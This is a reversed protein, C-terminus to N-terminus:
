KQNKIIQHLEESSKVKYGDQIFPKNYLYFVNGNEDSGGPVLAGGFYRAPSMASKIDNWADLMYDYMTHYKRQARFLSGTTNFGEAGVFPIEKLPEAKESIDKWYVYGNKKAIQIAEAFQGRAINSLPGTEPLGCCGTGCSKEKHHADSVFFPIGYKESLKQMREIHSRKIDYNLRLLGARIMSNKKYFPFVDFGCIKSIVKFREEAIGSSRSELCLMETTISDVKADHAMAFMEDVCLDSVGLVYSRFRLTTVAVGIEKLKKLAYFREKPTPTGAELKKAHEDNTTIISYKMQINKAGSFEKLYEEDNLFWVGKTSISIPYAIENFFKLLELSKKFRQEYWDFGDSLGGWQLVKRDKIYWAFSGAYKDPELFMRKVKEVNVSKVKHHLYDNASAGLARQFYAFCYVCQHACNSYTDFTMPMACDLIEWSWRPSNYYEKELEM